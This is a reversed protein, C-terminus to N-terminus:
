EHVQLFNYLTYVQSMTDIRHMMHAFSNLGTSDPPLRWRGPAGPVGNSSVTVNGGVTTNSLTVNNSASPPYLTQSSNARQLLHYHSRAYGDADYVQFSRVPFIFFGIIHILHSLFLLCWSLISPRLLLDSRTSFIGDQVLATAYYYWTAVAGLMVGCLCLEFAISALSTRSRFRKVKTSPASTNDSIATVQGNLGDTLPHDHQRSKREIKWASITDYITLGVYVAILVLMALDPAMQAAHWHSANSNYVVAPLAQFFIFVSMMSHREYM